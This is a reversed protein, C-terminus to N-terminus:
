FSIIVPITRLVFTMKNKPPPPARDIQAGKWGFGVSVWIGFVYTSSHAGLQTQAGQPHCSTIKKKNTEIMPQTITTTAKKFSIPLLARNVNSLPFTPLPLASLPLTHFVSIYLFTFSLPLIFFVILSLSIYNFSASPFARIIASWPIKLPTYMFVKRGHYDWFPHKIIWTKM